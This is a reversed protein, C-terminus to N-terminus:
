VTLSAGSMDACNDAQPPFQPPPPIQVEAIGCIVRVTKKIEDNTKRFASVQGPGLKPMEPNHAILLIRALHYHQLGTVVADSLYIETPFIGNSEPESAWAPQFYWPKERWWREQFERLEKWAGVGSWEESGYCYRLCNACHIIVGNAFGSGNDDPQILKGIDRLVFNAHVPRSHVFAMYIEQRLAVWFAALRLGSFDSLTKEQAALFVRTGMLHFEPGPPAVPVDLEETYRLLVIATLLNEDVIAASSSLAPILLRLCDQHYRDVVLGDFDGIRSLRKASAALMAYLLLPCTAARQPVVTAFHRRDQDCLDLLPAVNEVYYRLLFAQQYDQLPWQPTDLYISSGQRVTGHRPSTTLGDSQLQIFSDECPLGFLVDQGLLAQDLGLGFTNATDVSGPSYILNPPQEPLPSVDTGPSSLDAGSTSDLSLAIAHGLQGAVVIRDETTPANDPSSSALQSTQSPASPSPSTDVATCSRPSPLERRPYASSVTANDEGDGATGFSGAGSDNINNVIGQTEDVFSLSRSVEM